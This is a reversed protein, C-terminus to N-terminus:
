NNISALNQGILELQKTYPIKETLRDGFYTSFAVDEAWVESDFKQKLRAVVGEGRKQESDNFMDKAATSDVFAEYATLNPVFYDLYEKLAKTGGLTDVRPKFAQKFVDGRQELGWLAVKAKIDGKTVRDRLKQKYEEVLEDYSSYVGKDLKIPEAQSIQTSIVDILGISFGPLPSAGLIIGKPYITAIDRLDDPNLSTQGALFQQNNLRKTDRNLIQSLSIQDGWTSDLLIQQRLVFLDHVVQPPLLYMLAQNSAIDFSHGLYEHRFSIDLNESGEETAPNVDMTIELYYRDQGKVKILRFHGAEEANVGERSYSASALLIRTEFNQLMPYNKLIKEIRQKDVSFIEKAQPNNLFGGAVGFKIKGLSDQENEIPQDPLEVIAGLDDRKFSGVLRNKLPEWSQKVKETDGARQAAEIQAIQSNDLSYDQQIEDKSVFFPCIDEPKIFRTNGLQKQYLSLLLSQGQDNKTERTIKILQSLIPMKKEYDKRQEVLYTRLTAKDVGPAIQLLDFRNILDVWNVSTQVEVTKAQNNDEGALVRTATIDVPALTSLGLLSALTGQRVWTKVPNGLRKGKSELNDVSM